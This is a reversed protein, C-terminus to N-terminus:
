VILLAHGANIHRAYNVTAGQQVWLLDGHAFSSVNATFVVNKLTGRPYEWSGRGYVQSTSILEYPTGGTASYANAATPANVISHSGSSQRIKLAHDYEQTYNQGSVGRLPERTSFGYGNFVRLISSSGTILTVVGLPIPDQAQTLLRDFLGVYTGGSDASGDRRFSYALMDNTVTYFYQTSNAGLGHGQWAFGSDINVNGNASNGGGGSISLTAAYSYNAGGATITIEKVRLRVTSTAGVGGGDVTVTPVSTFGTGRNVITYSTVVGSGNTTATVVAGTGGGGTVTCSLATQSAPYGSGGVGLVVTSLEMVAEATTGSGQYTPWAGGISVSPKSTYDVGNNTMTVSTVYSTTGHNPLARPTTAYNAIGNANTGTVGPAWTPFNTAQKTGTNWLEFTTVYIAQNPNGVGAGSNYYRGLAIFFDTNNSNNAAPNKYVDWRFNGSDVNVDVREWGNALLDPHLLNIFTQGATLSDYFSGVKHTM